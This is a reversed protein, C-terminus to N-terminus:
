LVEFTQPRKSLSQAPPKLVPNLQLTACDESALARDHDISLASHGTHTRTRALTSFLLLYIFFSWNGMKVDHTQEFSVLYLCHTNSEEGREFLRICVCVCVCLSVQTNRDM